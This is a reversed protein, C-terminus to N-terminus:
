LGRLIERVGRALGALDRAECLVDCAPLYASLVSDATDWLRRPEPDLWIVRRCRSATEEFAWALPDRYNTRADGLVVLVTDRSGSRDLLRRAQFFVRGYDSPAALNLGPLAALLDAFGAAGRRPSVGLGPSAGRLARARRHPARGPRRAQPPGPHHSWARAKRGTAWARVPGTADVVRDVFFFIETRRLRETFGACILIFLGAARAVSHSVDVLLVVRPSRPRRERMPLTFPVGGHALSERIMKKVWLRGRPGERHRRGRRLRIEEVLKPIERALAAEEETTFPQTLDRRRPEVSRPAGGQRPPADSPREVAGAPRDEDALVKRLRGPPSAPPAQGRPQDGPHGGARRERFISERTREVTRRREHPSEAPPRQPAIAPGLGKGGRGGGGERGAPKGRARTGEGRPVAFYADFTEDFLRSDALSKSLTVKLAARFAGKSEIGVALAARGAEIAEAPSVRLGRRRLERVFQSIMRTM